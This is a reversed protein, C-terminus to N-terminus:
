FLGSYDGNDTLQLQSARPTQQGWVHEQIVRPIARGALLSAPVDFDDDAELVLHLPLLHTTNSGWSQFAPWQLTHSPVWTQLPSPLIKEPFHNMQTNITILSPVQSGGAEKSSSLPVLIGPAGIKHFFRVFGFQSIEVMNWNLNDERACTGQKSHCRESTKWGCTHSLIRFVWIFQLYHLTSDQRM